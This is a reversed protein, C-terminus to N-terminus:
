AREQVAGPSRPSLVGQPRRGGPSCMPADGVPPDLVPADPMPMDAAVPAGAAAGQGGGGGGQGGGGAPPAAGTLVHPRTLGAGECQKISDILREALIENKDTLRVDGDAKAYARLLLSLHKKQCGKLIQGPQTHAILVLTRHLNAPDMKLAVEGDLKIPHAGEIKDAAKKQLVKLETRIGVGDKGDATGWISEVQVRFEAGASNFFKTLLRDICASRVARAADAELLSAWTAEELVPFLADFARMVIESRKVHEVALQFTHPGMRALHEKTLQSSLEAQALTFATLCSPTIATLGGYQQRALLFLIAPDKLGQSAPGEKVILLELLPLLARDAKSAHAKSCRRHLSFVAWGGIVAM